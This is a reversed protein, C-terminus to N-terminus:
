WEIVVTDWGGLISSFSKTLLASYVTLHGSSESMDPWTFSLLEYNQSGIGVYLEEYEFDTSWNPFWLYFGSIEILVVFPQSSLTEASQNVIQAELVFDDGVQLIKHSTKLDVYVPDNPTPTFTPLTPTVTPTVTPLQTPTFTPATTPTATPLPTPSIWPGNYEDAGVDYGGYLPRPDRDVDHGLDVATGSDICPSDPLLHFDFPNMNAFKPDLDFNGEGEHGGQINCYKCTGNGYVHINDSERGRIVCNTFHIAEATGPYDGADNGYFTCNVVNEVGTLAGAWSFAYDTSSKVDCFATNGYFVSNTVTLATAIAGGGANGDDSYENFVSNNLFICADITLLNNGLIAGGMVTGGNQTQHCDRFTFGEIQIAHVSVSLDLARQTGHSTVVCNEPGNESRITLPKDVTANNSIHSGDAILITDGPEAADFAMQITPYDAPIHLTAANSSVLLIIFATVPLLFYRFKM